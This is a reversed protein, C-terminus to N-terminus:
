RSTLKSRWTRKDGNEYKLDIEPAQKLYDEYSKKSKFAVAVLNSTLIPNTMGFEAKLLEAHPAKLKVIEATERWAPRFAIYGFGSNKLVYGLSETTYSLRHTFDIYRHYSFTPSLANPVQILLSGSDGLSKSIDTLLDIQKDKDIHELCDIMSVLDYQKKNKSFFESADVLKVDLKEKKAIKIQYDDIDIGGLNKYGRERFALLFRGMGCGIDFINSDKNKPWVGHTDIFNISTKVDVDRSEDTDQHWKEYQFKYTETTMKCDGM